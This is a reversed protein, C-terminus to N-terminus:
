LFFFSFVEPLKLLSCFDLAFQLLLLISVSKFIVSFRIYSPLCLPVSNFLFAFLVSSALSSLLLASQIMESKGLIYHLSLRSAESSLKSTTRTLASIGLSSYIRRKFDTSSVVMIQISSLKSNYCLLDSNYCLLDGGNVANNM